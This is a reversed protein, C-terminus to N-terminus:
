VLRSMFHDLFRDAEVALCVDVNPERGPVSRTKGSTEEETDIQVYRAETRCFQPDIVIGVALPDHLACGGIGPNHNEYFDIYFDTADALFMAEKSGQERWERLRSRPLLTKMTVDLGVLTIPVGSRFVYDAAEPDSYINAEAHPTVNGPVTVAGGMIVVRKVLRVFEADEQIALALNTLPGVAIVTLEGPRAKAQDILFRAANTGAARSRPLSSGLANGLGDEGHVEKAHGRGVSRRFPLSAGAHVPVEERGFVELMYLTNRTAEEVSVNGFCTTLGVLELEPSRAAYAIALADDIGTDVDLIIPKL